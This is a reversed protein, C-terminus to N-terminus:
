AKLLSAARSAAGLLATKQNMIVKVPIHAVIHSLRGKDKFAKVFTGDKLKWTIKPAIGGGIYVGGIAMVQLALNGAAAGYISTFLDLAESCLKNKQLRAMESIVEAPDEEKMKESLWPPEHGFKKSDKLFQYVHFLGDGSLVREYSVHDFRDSLYHFLGLELHNRPGFEIHGGESPSPVHQKGDWFLIAEGLGTGASILAQNGKKVKGVNLTEFDRRNLVSIGYANAVLDNIVEMKKFPLVKRLSQIDIWWPLNTAIVVEQTVPGAVGFCAAAIGKKGRLFDKLINELGKYNKSLFTKEFLLRLRGRNVEFVGLRTNTGGVDGALIM